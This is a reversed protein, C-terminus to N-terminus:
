VLPSAPESKEPLDYHFYLKRCPDNSHDMGRNEAFLTIIAAPPSPQVLGNLAGIRGKDPIIRPIRAKGKLGRRPHFLHRSGQIAAAPRGNHGTKRRKDALRAPVPFSLDPFAATQQVLASKSRFIRESRKV